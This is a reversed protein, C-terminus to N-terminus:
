TVLSGPTHNTQVPQIRMIIPIRKVKKKEWRRIQDLKGGISSFDFQYHTSSSAFVSESKFFFEVRWRRKYSSIASPAQMDLDTTMLLIRRYKDHKEDYLVSVILLVKGLIPHQAMIRKYHYRWGLRNSQKMQALPTYDRIDKAKRTKGNISFNLNGSVKAIITLGADKQVLSHALESPMERRGKRREGAVVAKMLSNSRQYAADCSFFVGELSIGRKKAEAQLAEIMAKMMQPKSLHEPHEKPLWLRIDIPIECKTDGFTAILVVLNYCPLKKGNSPCFLKTLYEMCKATAKAQKTDDGIIHPRYRSRYSPNGNQYAEVEAFFCDYAVSRLLESFAESNVRLIHYLHDREQQSISLEHPSDIDFLPMLLYQCILKWDSADGQFKAKFIEIQQTFVDLPNSAIVTM